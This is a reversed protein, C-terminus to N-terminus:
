KWQLKTIIKLLADNFKHPDEWVLFHTSNEFVISQYDTYFHQWEDPRNEANSANIARIPVHLKSVCDKLNYNLWNFAAFVIPKWYEPIQNGPPMERLYRVTMVSDKQFNLYWKNFDKYSQAASNFFSEILTSDVNYNVKNLQDVLIVGKVKKGLHKATEVVIMAGMSWGVLIINKLHLQNCLLAVDKGYQQMTWQQRTHDSKGFGPMDPVIVKFRNQFYSIQDEWASSNCSWGHIFVIANNGKGYSEYYMKNSDNTSIYHSQPAIQLQKQAFVSMISFLYILFSFTIKKM